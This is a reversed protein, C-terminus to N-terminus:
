LIFYCIFDYLHTFKRIYFRKIILINKDFDTLGISVRDNRQILYHQNLSKGGLIIIFFFNKKPNKIKKYLHKGRIM